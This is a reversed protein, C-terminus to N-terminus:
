EESEENKQNMQTIWAAAYPAFKDRAKNLENLMAITSMKMNKAIEDFEYGESVKYLVSKVDFDPYDIKEALLFQDVDRASIIVKQDQYNSGGVDLSTQEMESCKWVGDEDPAYTFRSQGTEIDSQQNFSLEASELLISVDAREKLDNLEVLSKGLQSTGAKIKVVVNEKNDISISDIEGYFNLSM